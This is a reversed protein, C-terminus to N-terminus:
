HFPGYCGVDLPQLFHSTHAPLVFLIINRTIAWDVLGFSTHSKHGDLLLLIPDDGRGPAYKLFHEEIYRMFVDTNSWGTKSVTGDTCPCKGEMLEQRMRTGEFVFFPPIAVGVTIGCGFVTTTSSNASVIEQVALTNGAVVSPPSHNQQIGKEDVNFILHPKDKLNYKTIVKELEDFYSNM